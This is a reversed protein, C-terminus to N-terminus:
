SVGDYTKTMDLQIVMNKPKGSKRIDTAMKQTLLINKIISRIKVFGAQNPSILKPLIGEFRGHVVRSIIKNM